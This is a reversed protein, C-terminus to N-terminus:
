RVGDQKESLHKDIKTEITLITDTMASCSQGMIRERYISGM